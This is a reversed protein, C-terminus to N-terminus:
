LPLALFSIVSARRLKLCAPSTRWFDIRAVVERILQLQLSVFKAINDTQMGLSQATDRMGEVTAEYAEKRHERPLSAIKIAIRHSTEWLKDLFEDDTM